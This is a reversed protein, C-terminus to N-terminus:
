QIWIKTKRGQLFVFSIVQRCCPEMLRKVEELYLSAVNSDTVICIKRSQLNLKELEAPLAQFDQELVIDYVPNGNMQVTM